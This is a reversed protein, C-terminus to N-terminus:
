HNDHDIIIRYNNYLFDEWSIGEDELLDISQHDIGTTHWREDDNDCKPLEIIIESPLIDRMKELFKESSMEKEVSLAYLYDIVKTGLSALYDLKDEFSIVAPGVWGFCKNKIYFHGESPVLNIGLPTQRLSLSHASSSNTEFVNRRINKKM